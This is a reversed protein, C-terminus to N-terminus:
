NVCTHSYFLFHLSIYLVNVFLWVIPIIKLFLALLRRMSTDKYSNIPGRIQYHREVIPKCNFVFTWWILILFDQVFLISNLYMMFTRRGDYVNKLGFLFKGEEFNRFSVEGSSWDIWNSRFEFCVLRRSFAIDGKRTLPIDTKKVFFQVDPHLFWPGRQYWVSQDLFYM